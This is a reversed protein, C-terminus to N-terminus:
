TTQKGQDSRGYLLTSADPCASTVPVLQEVYQTFPPCQNTPDNRCVNRTDLTGSSPRYGYSGGSSPRYGYSGGSSPRYGGYSGYPRYPRYSGYSGYPRRHAETIALAMFLSLLIYAKM